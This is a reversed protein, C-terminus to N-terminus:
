KQRTSLSEKMCDNLCEVICLLVSWFTLKETAKNYKTSNNAGLHRM